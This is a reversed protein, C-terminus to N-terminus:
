KSILFLIQNYNIIDETIYIDPVIGEGSILNMDSDYVKLLSMTVSVGLPLRFFRVDSPVGASNRGIAKGDTAELFYSLYFEGRSITQESCLFYFKKNLKFEKAKENQTRSNNTISMKTSDLYNYGPKNECPVLMYRFIKDSSILYKSWKNSFTINSPYERNDIIITTMKKSSKLYRAFEADNCKGFNIYSTTDNLIAFKYPFYDNPLTQSKILNLNIKHNYIERDRQTAFSVVTDNTNFTLTKNSIRANTVTTNSGELLTKYYDNRKKLPVEDISYIRDGVKINNEIGFTEAVRAIVASTDSIALEVYRNLPTPWQNFNTTIHSDKQSSLVQMMIWGYSQKINSNDLKLIKDTFSYFVSDNDCDDIPYNSMYNYVNFVYIYMGLVDYKNNIDINNLLSGYEKDKRSESQVLINPILVSKSKPSILGYNEIKRFFHQNENNIYDKDIWDFLDECILQYNEIVINSDLYLDHREDAFSTLKKLSNNFTLNPYCTDIMKLEDTLLKYYDKTENENFPYYFAITSWAAGFTKLLELKPSVQCRINSSISSAIIIIIILTRKM